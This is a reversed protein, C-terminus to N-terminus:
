RILKPFDVSTEIKHTYLFYKSDIYNSDYFSDTVCLFLRLFSFHPFFFGIVVPLFRVNRFM